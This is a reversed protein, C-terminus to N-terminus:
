PAPRSAELASVLLRVAHDTAAQVVEEPDGPFLRRESREAGPAAVAFWVTGPEEGDQPEPGGAGTVAVVVDAGLLRVAQRAMALAATRSVVPGEPVELLDFKVASAYAVVGGRFWNAAQPAAGLASSVAGSTLSEAVGATLGKEESLAAVQAALGSTGERGTGRM